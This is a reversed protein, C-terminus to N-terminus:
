GIITNCNALQHYCYIIVKFRDFNERIMSLDKPDIEYDPKPLDEKRAQLYNYWADFEEKAM